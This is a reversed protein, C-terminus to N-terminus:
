GSAAALRHYADLIAPITENWDYRKAGQASSAALEAGRGPHNLVEVIADAWAAPDDPDILLGHDGVTEPIASADAALIPCQHTMADLLPLGFGEYSSPFVLAEAADYLADLDCRPIRGLRRVAYDIGLSRALRDIRRDGPGPRGTCVLTADPHRELVTPLARVLVDHNKHPYSIAPYLLLSGDLRYRRRTTEAVRPDPFASTGGPPAVVVSNSGTDLHRVLQRRVHHSLTSVVHARRASRPVVKQLWTRKAWGFHEPHFLPQLDYVTLVPRGAGVLPMTGGLHHVVDPMMRRMKYPLWTNEWMLRLSRARGSGPSLVVSAVADLEPYARRLSPQCFVVLDVEDSNALERLLAIAYDESGGVDGPVLWLLNIGVRLRRSPRAGNRTM